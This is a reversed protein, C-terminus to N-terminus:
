YNMVNNSMEKSFWSKTQNKSAKQKDELANSKM